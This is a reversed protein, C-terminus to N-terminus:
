RSRKWKAICKKRGGGLKEGGKEAKEKPKNLWQGSHLVISYVIPSRLHKMWVWNSHFPNKRALFGGVLVILTDCLFLIDM